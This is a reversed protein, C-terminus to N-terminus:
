LLVLGLDGTRVPLPHMGIHRLLLGKAAPGQWAKSVARWRSDSLFEPVLLFVLNVVPFEEGDDAGEAM